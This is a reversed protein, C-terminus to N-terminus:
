AGAGCRRRPLLRAGTLNLSRRWPWASRPYARAPDGNAAACVGAFQSDLEMGAALLLTAREFASLGFTSCLAELRAPAAKGIETKVTTEARGRAELLARVEAVAAVLERQNVESPNAAATVVRM